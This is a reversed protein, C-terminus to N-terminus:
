ITCLPVKVKVLELITPFKEEVKIEIRFGATYVSDSSYTCSQVSQKTVTVSINQYVADLYVASLWCTISVNAATM